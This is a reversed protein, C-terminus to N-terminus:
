NAQNLLYSVHVIGKVFELAFEASTFPKGADYAHNDILGQRINGATAVIDVVRGDPGRMVAPVTIASPPADPLDRPAWGASTRDYHIIRRVAASRDHDSNGTLPLGIQQGQLQRLPVTYTNEYVDVGFHLGEAPEQIELEDIDGDFLAMRLGPAIDDDYRMDLKTGAQYAAIKLGPWAIVVDSNLLYGSIPGQNPPFLEPPTFAKGSVSRAISCAGDLLANIWNIDLRVFRMSEPPMMRGDPILYHLPMNKLNKLDDLWQTVVDPPGAESALARRRGRAGTFRAAFLRSFLSAPSDGDTKARSLLAMAQSLRDNEAATQEVVALQWNYLAASFQRNGLALIQGLQWAAAYSVDFLGTEPNYALAADSSDLPVALRSSVPLPLLPGRYWSIDKGGTRMHHALPVYGLAFAHQVLNDAQTDSLEGKAQASLANAVDDAKPIEAPIRLHSILEGESELDDCLHDLAHRLVSDSIPLTNFQWHKLVVLRVYTYGSVEGARQGGPLFDGFGELSVLVAHAAGPMPLRNGLVAAFQGRELDGDEAPAGRGASEPRDSLDVERVHALYPMDNLNAAVASFVDSKLDITSIGDQATEGYELEGTELLPYSLVTSPLAGTGDTSQPTQSHVPVGSPVLDQVQRSDVTPMQDPDLLLVALWTTDEPASQCLGRLWPLMARNFVVFPVCGLYPGTAKDPPFVGQIEQPLVKFREGRVQFSRSLKYHEDVGADDIKVEEDVSVTFTGARLAPLRDEIFTIQKTASM